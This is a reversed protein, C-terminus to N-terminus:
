KKSKMTADITKEYGEKQDKFDKENMKFEEVITHPKAKKYAEEELNKTAQDKTSCLENMVMNLTANDLLPLKGWEIRAGCGGLGLKAGPKLQSTLFKDVTSNYSKSIFLNELKKKVLQLKGGVRTIVSSYWPVFNKDTDTKGIDYNHPVNGCNTGYDCGQTKVLFQGCNTCKKIQNRIDNPNMLDWTMIKKVSELFKDVIKIKLKKMEIHATYSNFDIMTLGHKKEFEDIISDLENTLNIAAAQILNNTDMDSEKQSVKVLDLYDNLMSEAKEKFDAYAANLDKEAAWIKFKTFFEEATVEIKIKSNNSMCSYMANSLDTLSSKYSYMIAQKIKNAQVITAINEEAKSRDKKKVVDCTSFMLVVNDMYKNIFKTQEKICERIRDGRTDYRLVLFIANYPMAEYACKLLYAHKYVEEDSDIGPTDVLSFPKDGHEVAEKFLDRTASSGSASVLHDTECLMNLLTTKGSGTNGMILGVPTYDLIQPKIGKFPLITVPHKDRKKAEKKDDFSGSKMDLSLQASNCGISSAFAVSCFAVRLVRFMIKAVM